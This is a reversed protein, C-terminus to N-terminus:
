LNRQYLFVGANSFKVILILLQLKWEDTLHLFHEWSTRLLEPFLQSLFINNNKEATTITTTLNELFCDLFDFGLWVLLNFPFNHLKEMRFNIVPPVSQRVSPAECPLFFSCWFPSSNILKTYIEHYKLVFDILNWCLMRCLWWDFQSFM